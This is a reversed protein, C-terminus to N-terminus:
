LEKGKDVQFNMLIIQQAYWASLGSKRSFEASSKVNAKSERSAVKHWPAIATMISSWTTQRPDLSCIRDPMWGQFISNIDRSIKTADWKKFSSISTKDKLFFRHGGQSQILKSSYRSDHIKRVLDGWNCSNGPENPLQLILSERMRMSVRKKNM